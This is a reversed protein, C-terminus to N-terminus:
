RRHLASLRRNQASHALCRKAPLASDPHPLDPRADDDADNQGRMMTLMMESSAGDVLEGREMAELLTAIERPTSYGFATKAEAHFQEPSPAKRLANFWDQATGPARTNKLGLSTMRRNVAEPGGVMRYLVDTATNDSVINMLVLLDKVSLQAGPDLSRLVGTGPRVDEKVLVYRDELKLKGEKIQSFAEVMLPIKIVSMTDMVRDGDLSLVEGTELCKIYIGWQANVSRTVSEISTRLASTQASAAFLAPIALWARRM